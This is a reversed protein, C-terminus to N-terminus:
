NIRKLAEIASSTDSITLGHEKILVEIQEEFTKAPKM